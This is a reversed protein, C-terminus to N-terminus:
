PDCSTRAEKLEIVKEETVCHPGKLTDNTPPLGGDAAGRTNVIMGNLEVFGSDMITARSAHSAFVLVPAATVNKGKGALVVNTAENSSAFPAPIPGTDSTILIRGEPLEDHKGDPPLVIVTVVGYANLPM